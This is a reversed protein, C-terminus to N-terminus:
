VLQALFEISRRAVVINKQFNLFTVTSVLLLAYDFKVFPINVSNAPCLYM